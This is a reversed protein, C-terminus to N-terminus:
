VFELAFPLLAIIVVAPAVLFLIPFLIKTAATAGKKEVDSSRKQRIEASLGKLIPGVSAGVSDAAILTACFSSIQIVDIRWSMQRLGEARSAGLRTDKILTEFEETLPSNPAKDIVKVMAAMFDLGAEVSLALMDIIFPMAILIDEKRKAIKGNIWIDPYFFGLIAVLPVYALSWDAETFARFGLFVVPFGIILFLKFALFDEPSLEKNLGATALKKRYRLKINKKNKMGSVVPTFYRKFFPRSYKLVFDNAAKQEKDIEDADELKEQARFKDDDSFITQAILFIALFALILSSYYLINSGEFLSENSMKKYKLVGGGLSVLTCKGDRNELLMDDQNSSPDISITDKGWVGFNMSISLVKALRQTKQGEFLGVDMYVTCEKNKELFVSNIKFKMPKKSVTGSFYVQDQISRTVVIIDQNIKDVRDVICEKKISLFSDGCSNTEQANLNKLGLLPWLFIALLLLKTNIIM